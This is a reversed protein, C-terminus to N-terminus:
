MTASASMGAVAYAPVMGPRARVMGLSPPLKRAVEAAVTLYRVEQCVLVGPEQLPDPCRGVVVVRDGEVDERRVQGAPLGLREGLLRADQRDLLIRKALRM